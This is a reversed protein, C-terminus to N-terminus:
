NKGMMRKGEEVKEAKNEIKGAVVKMEGKLKTMLGPKKHTSDDSGHSTTNDLPSSSSHTAVGGSRPTASHTTNDIPAATSHHQAHTNDVPAARPVSPLTKDKETSTSTPPVAGLTNTTTGVPHEKSVGQVGGTSHGTTGPGTGAKLDEGTNVWDHGDHAGMEGAKLASAKTGSSHADTGQNAEKRTSGAVHNLKDGLSAHQVRSAEGRLDKHADVPQTTTDVKNHSPQSFSSATTTSQPNLPEIKAGDLASTPLGSRQQSATLEPNLPEIKSDAVPTDPIGTNWTGADSSRVNQPGLDAVPATSTLMSTMTNLPVDSHPLGATTFNATGPLTSEHDFGPKSAGTNSLGSFNSTNGTTTNTRSDPNLPAIKTDAIPTDPLGSDKWQSVSSNPKVNQALSSLTEAPSEQTTTTTGPLYSAVTAGAAAVYGKATELTSSAVNSAANATNAAVNGAANVGSKATDVTGTAVNGATNAAGAAVNGATNVAGAAVNGATNAANGATQQVTEREPANEYVVQGANVAYEKAKSATQGAVQQVTEKDPANQYVKEGAMVTLGAVTGVAQGVVNQVTEASPAAAYAQSALNSATNALSQLTSSAVDKAKDVDQSVVEPKPAESSPFAGPITPSAARDMVVAAVAPTEPQSPPLATTVATTSSPTIPAATHPTHTSVPLTHSSLGSGTTPTSAFESQGIPTENFATTGSFKPQAVSTTTTTTASEGPKLASLTSSAWENSPEATTLPVALPGGPTPVFQEKRETENIFPNNSM